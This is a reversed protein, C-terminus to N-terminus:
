EGGPSGPSGVRPLNVCITTGNWRFCYPRRPIRAFSSEETAAQEPAAGRSLEVGLVKLREQLQEYTLAQRGKGLTDSLAGSLAAASLAATEGLQVEGEIPNPDGGHIALWLAVIWAVDLEHALGIAPTPSTHPM